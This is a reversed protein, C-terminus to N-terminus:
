GAAIDLMAEEAQDINPPDPHWTGETLDMFM